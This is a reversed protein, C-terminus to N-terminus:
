IARAVGNAIAGKGVGEFAAVSFKTNSNNHKLQSVIFEALCEVTTDTDIVECEAVPMLLEFKGQNAQYSFGIYNKSNGPTICQMANESLDLLNNDVVDEQTGIYIDQWRKSWSQELKEDRVGEIEIEIKSRHGHVIRQCNGNHKKLGHSYHYYAGNIQEERLVIELGSINEPLENQIVVSLYDKISQSNITTTKLLAFAEEPCNLHISKNNPRNFDVWVHGSGQYTSTFPHLLPVLLKHDIHLDMLHKLKKKVLGFDLLMSHDNLDGDLIVDVILSEGIIGREGCLYSFDLTTLDNVFLLM